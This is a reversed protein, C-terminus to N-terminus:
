EKLEGRPLFKKLDLNSTSKGMQLQLMFLTSQQISSFTFTFVYRVRQSGKHVTCDM